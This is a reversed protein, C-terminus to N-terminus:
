KSTSGSAKTSTRTATSKKQDEASVGSDASSDASSDEGSTFKGDVADSTAWEEGGDDGAEGPSNAYGPDRAQQHFEPVAAPAYGHPLNKTEFGQPRSMNARSDTM